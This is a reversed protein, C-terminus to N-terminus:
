YDFSSGGLFERLVSTPPIEEEPISIFYSIFILLRVAESYEPVNEKVQKLLQDAYKKLVALEYILASNFMVDANEQYTFIHKEEGRRVSPWRQITTRADYGRYKSDRVIRRLLRNDTTPIYSHEDISIQTLASVFIRFTKEPDIRPTLAPNLGHIGEIILINDKQMRMKKGSFVRQGSHFDFRPMLVEEGSTLKLLFENFYPVDIADLSEFDYDGNEDLPTYQRDKFFDDLSIEISHLGVVALQIALRRSFTTKGSSSPGAILIMNVKDRKESIRAAIDVIKKEHLAESIKIISGYQNMRTIQNLQAIDKIGLIEAWNKHERFIGFLKDQGIAPELEKMNSPVPFRMLLGEYYRELGFNTICGSSILIHGYFFDVHGNLCCIPAYLRGYERFLEAKDPLGEKEYLDIAEESLVMKREIPLNRSLISHMEEKLLWLDEDTFVRKLGEIECYYGRSIAHDIKLSADPWINRIATYLVFSLTRIYMRQGDNNTYDFFQIQRPKVIEYDLPKVRNNVYAGLIPNALKIQLERAIELLTTGIPFLREEGTNLVKIEVQRM